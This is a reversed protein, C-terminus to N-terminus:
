WDSRCKQGRKAHIPVKPSLRNRIKICQGHAYSVDDFGDHFVGPCESPYIYPVAFRHQNLSNLYLKFSKSEVIHPSDAPIHFEGIAVRPKGSADLWSLEYANWIDVGRFPLAAAIGLVERGPARAIPCLLQPAYSADYDVDKGLLIESM